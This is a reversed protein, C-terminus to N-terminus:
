SLFGAIVLLLLLDAGKPRLVPPGVLARTRQLEARGDQRRDEIGDARRFIPTLYIM